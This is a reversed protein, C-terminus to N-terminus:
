QAINQRQTSNNATSTSLRPTNHVIDEATETKLEKGNAWAKLM